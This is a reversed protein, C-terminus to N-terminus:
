YNELWDDLMVMTLCPNYLSGLIFMINKNKYWITLGRGGSNWEAFQEPDQQQIKRKIGAIFEAEDVRQLFDSATNM